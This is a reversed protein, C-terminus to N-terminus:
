FCIKRKNLYSRKILISDSIGKQSEISMKNFEYLMIYILQDYENLLISHNILDNVSLYLGNVYEKNYKIKYTLRHNGDIVLSEYQGNLYPVILIPETAEIYMTEVHRLEGVSDIPTWHIKRKESVLLNIPVRKIKSKFNSFVKNAKRINFHLYVSTHFFYIPFQFISSQINTDIINTRIEENTCKEKNKLETEWKNLYEIQLDTNNLIAQPKFLDFIVSYDIKYEKKRAYDYPM